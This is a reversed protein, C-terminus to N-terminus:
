KIYVQAQLVDLPRLYDLRRERRTPTTQWIHWKRTRILWRLSIVGAANRGCLTEFSDVKFAETPSAARPDSYFFEKIKM